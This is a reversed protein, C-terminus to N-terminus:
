DPEVLGDSRFRDADTETGPDDNTVGAVSDPENIADSRFKEAETEARARRVEDPLDSSEHSM